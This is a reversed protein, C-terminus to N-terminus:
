NEVKQCERLLITNDEKAEKGVEATIIQFGKDLLDKVLKEQNEEDLGEFDDIFRVKLDPNKSAYLQAVIMELESRSFYPEKILKGKLTLEGDETTELGDVGFEFSKIYALRGDIIKDQETMAASLDKEKEDKQERKALYAQYAHAKKNQVEVNNLKEKLDGTHKIEEPDPLFNIAEKANNYLVKKQEIIVALDKLEDDLELILDKKSGIDVARTRQEENFKEMEELKSLLEAFSVRKVEEVEVVDGIAKIERRVFKADEKMEELNSDFNSTDIGLAIAQAKSSLGTFHRASLFAVHLLNTLWDKDIKYGEPASFTIQNSDKSIRRRLKIESNEDEDLLTIEINASTGNSGIFRFREGVLQGGKSKESIGKFGAWIATLGVTTKGSGNMGVLRTIKGDFECEFDTFQAFNKLKLRKIKM